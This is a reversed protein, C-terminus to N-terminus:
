PNNILMFTGGEKKIFDAYPKWLNTNETILTINNKMASMMVAAPVDMSKLVNPYDPGSVHSDTPGVLNLKLQNTFLSAYCLQTATAESGYVPCSPNLQKLMSLGQLLDWTQMAELSTGLLYYRRRIHKQVEDDGTYKAPGSGRMPLLVVHGRSNLEEPIQTDEFYIDTNIMSSYLLDKWRPWTHNDLIYAVALSDEFGPKTIEWVPLRTYPDAQLAKLEIHYGFAELDNVQSLTSTWGDPWNQFTKNQLQMLWQQQCANFGDAKIQNLVPAAQNVFSEDIRTNIENDPRQPLVRMEEPTCYPTMRWDMLSDIGLLYHNFWRLAPVQIDPIDHHGGGVVNLSLDDGMGLRDYATRIQSYSRYVGNVPFMVDRDANAILLPRPAILLGLMPYDWHYINNFYMCDCHEAACGDVVHNGLDTLGAVPVVVKIREDLAGLWWSTAGGGSRGTVGLRAPDVDPRSVLYDIARIGNWAEVSAPTYGRSIWWWRDYRYLGHHIGEIEGLQLTDIVLCIYGHRAYWAPHHQYHAKAGYDYGDQNVTAHGCVYLIAPLPKTIQKPRYLNGTVYLGPRSQFVIKEVVFDQKEVVGTIQVQLPTRDPVPALGLMEWLQDRLNQQVVKLEDLNNWSQWAPNNEMGQVQGKFFDGLQTDFDWPEQLPTRRELPTCFVLIILLWRM